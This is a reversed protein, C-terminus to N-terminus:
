EPIYSFQKFSTIVSLQNLEPIYFTKELKSNSKSINILFVIRLILLTESLDMITCYDLRDVLSLKKEPIIEEEGMPYWAVRM